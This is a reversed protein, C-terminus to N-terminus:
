NNMYKLFDLIGLYIKVAENKRFNDDALKEEDEANSMFALEVLIAPMDSMRTVRYNFSGVYGFPKLDLELMKSFVSEAFKEWFPNHFFTCTGATGLFENEPDSSNAHISLHINANSNIALDRRELLTMNKDSARVQFVEAGKEKLLKELLLSLKLNIDKEKLGSLGVAGNNNSGGHGAEISFKIGKLPLQNKLNYKPQYKIRFVLERGNPKLDYGWIKSTKLNVYIRYTEKSTQQWTVQDIYRLNPKHIIWTSSSKVGYLSIIIRKQAPDPYVDFPVNELYPIKIIDTSDTASCTIPNIFYGPTATEIPLEKVFEKNIFGEETENLYIRYYEGIIGNTKLIVNKPLEGRLPAGLRIPALTLPFPSNDQTTIVLPFNKVDKITIQQTLVKEIATLETNDEGPKLVLKLHFSQENPFDKLSIQAKYKSLTGLDERSCDFVKKSPLIEVYGKQGKTGNFSVTIDDKDTLILNENPQITNSQIALESIKDQFIKKRYLVRDEYIVTEGNKSKAEARLRNLGEHLKIKCFFVGTKYIKAKENNITVESPYGTRCLLNYTENNTIRDFPRRFEIWTGNRKVTNDKGLVYNYPIVWDNKPISIVSSGMRIKLTDSKSLSIFNLKSGPCLSKIRNDNLLYIEETTGATEKLDLAIFKDPTIRKLYNKLLNEDPHINAFNNTRISYNNNEDLVFDIIGDKIYKNFRNEDTVSSKLSIASLLYPKFMASEVLMNEFLENAAPSSLNIGSFYFGELETRSILSNLNDIQQQDMGQSLVKSAVLDFKIEIFLKINNKQLLDSFTKVISLTKKFTIGPNGIMKSIDDLGLVVADINNQVAHFVERNSFNKITDPKTLDINNLDLYRIKDKFYLSSDSHFTNWTASLTESSYLTLFFTM